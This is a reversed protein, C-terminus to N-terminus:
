LLQVLDGLHSLLFLVLIQKRLQVLKARFNGFSKQLGEFTVPFHVFIQPLKRACLSDVLHVFAEQFNLIKFVDITQPLVPSLSRHISVDIEWFDSHFYLAM